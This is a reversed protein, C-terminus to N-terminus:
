AIKDSATRGQLSLIRDNALFRATEFRGPPIPAAVHLLAPVIPSVGPTQTLRGLEGPTEQEPLYFATVNPLVPLRRQRSYGGGSEDTKEEPMAGVHVGSIPFTDVRVVKGHGSVDGPQAMRLAAKASMTSCHFLLSACVIARAARLTIAKHNNKMALSPPKGSRPLPRMGIYIGGAAPITKWFRNDINKTFFQRKALKTCFVPRNKKRPRFIKM